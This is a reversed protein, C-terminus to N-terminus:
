PRAERDDEGGEENFLAAFAAIDDWPMAGGHAFRKLPVGRQRFYTARAWAYKHSVGLRDCVEEVSASEQWAQVFEFPGIGTRSRQQPPILDDAILRKRLGAYSVGFEEALKHLSERGVQNRHAIAELPLAKLDAPEVVGPPRRYVGSERLIKLITTDTIGTEREIAGSTYGGIHLSIINERVDDPVRHPRRVVGGAGLIKRITPVALGTQRRIEAMSNGAEYLEVARAAKEPPPSKSM